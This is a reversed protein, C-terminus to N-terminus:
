RRACGAPRRPRRAPRASSRACRAGARRSRPAARGERRVRAPLAAHLPARRSASRASGPAGPRELQQPAPAPARGPGPSRACRRRRRTARCRSSPARSRACTAARCPACGARDPAGPPACAAGPPDAAWRGRPSSGGRHAAAARSSTRRRRPPPRRPRPRAERRAVADRAGARAVRVVGLITRARSGRAHAHGSPTRELLGGERREARDRELADADRARREPSIPATIPSPSIPWSAHWSSRALPQRTSPM